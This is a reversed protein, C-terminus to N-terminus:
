RTYAPRWGAALAEAETCFWRKGSKADMSVKDYWSSWPMHYILGASSVNGKIACGEPAAEAVVVWRQARYEWAPVASGQWIGIGVQRATAEQVVYHRSYKIFAWALGRKVMEANLDVDGVYCIALMRGYKDLGRSHCDVSRDRTMEVMERTAARGCAWTVSKADQCTQGAEPADIGELRIRTGAIEITDGDVVRAPGSVIGEPPVVATSRASGPNAGSFISLVVPALALAVRFRSTSVTNVPRM